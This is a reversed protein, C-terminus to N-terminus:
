CATEAARVIRRCGHQGQDSRTGKITPRTQSICIFTRILIVNHPVYQQEEIQLANMIFGSATVTHPPSRGQHSERREDEDLQKKLSALTVVVSILVPSPPLLGLLKCDQPEEYLNPKTLDRDFDQRM